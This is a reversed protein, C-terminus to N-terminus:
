REKTPFMNEGNEIYSAAKSGKEALGTQASRGSAEEDMNKDVQCTLDLKYLWTFSQQESLNFRFCM